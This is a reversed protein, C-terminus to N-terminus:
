SRDNGCQYNEQFLNAYFEALLIKYKQDTPKTCKAQCRDHWICLVVRKSTYNASLLYHKTTLNYHSFIEVQIRNSKKM